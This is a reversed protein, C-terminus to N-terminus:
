ILVPHLNLLNVYRTYQEIWASLRSYLKFLKTMVACVPARSCFPGICYNNSTLICSINHTTVIYPVRLHSQLLKSASASCMSCFAFRIMFVTQLWSVAHLLTLRAYIASYYTKIWGVKRLFVCTTITTNHACTTIHRSSLQLLIVHRVNVISHHVM